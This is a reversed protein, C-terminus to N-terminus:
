IPYRYNFVWTIARWNRALYARVSGIVKSFKTITVLIIIIYSYYYYCYNVILPPYKGLRPASDHFLTKLTTYISFCHSLIACFSSQLANIGAVIVIKVVIAPLRAIQNALKGKDILTQWRRNTVCHLLWDPISMKPFLGIM